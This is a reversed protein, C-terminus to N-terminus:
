KDFSMLRAAYRAMVDVEVNMRDGVKLTAFNTHDWTYPIINVGFSDENVDNVTLSIGDLAVSGKVAILGAQAMPLRVRVRHSGGERAISLIETTGDIHGSVMHGGLEDGVRLSAELNLRTGQGWAPMTTKSLTEGSVEVAFWDPGQEVLTLCVGNNAISAGRDFKNQAMFEPCSIVYRTDRPGTTVQSVTGMARIIGTFM